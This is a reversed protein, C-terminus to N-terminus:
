SAGSPWGPYAPLTPFDSRPHQGAILFTRREPPDPAKDVCATLDSKYTPWESDFVPDGSGWVNLIGTVKWDGFVDDSPAPLPGTQPPLGPSQDSHPTIMKVLEVGVGPNPVLNLPNQAISVFAGEKEKAIAYDYVCTVVTVDHGATTVRLIHRRSTGFRPEKLPAELYPWRDWASMLKSDPEDKLVARSYGPYVYEIDGMDQALLTSETYARAVVAPDTLLDIGPEASWVQRLDSLLGGWREVPPSPPPPAPDPQGPTCGAVMTTAAIAALCQIPFTRTM